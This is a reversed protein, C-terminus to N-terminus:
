MRMPIDDGGSFVDGFGFGSDRRPQAVRKSSKSNKDLTQKNKDINQKNKDINQKNRDSSQKRLPSEIEVGGIVALENEELAREKLFIKTYWVYGISSFCCIAILLIGFVLIFTVTDVGEFQYVNKVRDSIINTVSSPHFSPVMSPARNTM